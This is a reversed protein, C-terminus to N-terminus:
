SQCLCRWQSVMANHSLNKVIVNEPKTLFPQLIKTHETSATFFVYRNQLLGFFRTAEAWCEVLAVVGNWILEGTEPELAPRKLSVPSQSPHQQTNHASRTLNYYAYHTSLSTAEQNEYCPKVSNILQGPLVQASWQFLVEPTQSPFSGVCAQRQTLHSAFNREKGCKTTCFLNHSM